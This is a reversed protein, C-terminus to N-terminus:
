KRRVQLKRKTAVNLKRVPLVSPLQVDLSALLQQSRERPTPINQIDCDGGLSVTMACLTKLSDLGEEVTLDFAYWARELERRILYALMVIFVHGRTSKETRVYIPRLELHGTKSTRFGREVRALDKYRAHITQADICEPALDSVLVYCGDLRAANELVEQDVVVRFCREDSEIQLWAAINLKDIKEQVRKLATETRAKPHERLYLNQKDCVSEVSARKSRRSAALEEARVPNRRLILRRKDQRVECIQEDFLEMQIADDRLLKEIQPKTIATIYHFGAENLDAMQGSKIMGRDGVFTVTSCGFQDAAKRIQSAVTKPDQTNGAFVEVSVPEGVADCLLGIVIQKKGKKGDRNYGWAALENHDGELYSSTVDYLFLSPKEEGQRIKFLRKEITHQQECIWALNEYLDEENFGRELGVVEALAHAEHLRVASLRSGQDIVRAIIQWLALQAQRGAGLAKVIGLREAVKAVAWVAGVSRQEQLTFPTQQQEMNELVREPNKLALAIADQMAKPYKTINLLTRHKVRTKPAGKERYSERILVQEYTKDGRKTKICEVYMIAVNYWLYCAM